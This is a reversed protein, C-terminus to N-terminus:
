PMRNITYDVEGKVPSGDAAKFNYKYVFSSVPKLNPITLVLTKGDPQLKAESIEVPERSQKKPDSVSFDPSGYGSTRVINFWEASSNQKDAISAADLAGTFIIEFGNKNLHMELPM